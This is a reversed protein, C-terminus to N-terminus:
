IKSSIKLNKKDKQLKWGDQYLIKEYMLVDKMEQEIKSFIKKETEFLNREFKEAMKKFKCSEEYAEDIKHEEYLKEIM